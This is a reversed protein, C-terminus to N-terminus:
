SGVFQSQELMKSIKEIRHILESDQLDKPDFDENRINNAYLEIASELAQNHELLKIHLERAFDPPTLQNFENIKAKIETLKADLEKLATHDTAAKEILPPAENSFTNIKNIYDTAKGVYSISHNVEEIASCASTISLILTFAVFYFFTKKM